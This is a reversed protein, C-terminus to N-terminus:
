ESSGDGDGEGLDTQLLSSHDKVLDGINVFSGTFFENKDKMSFEDKSNKDLLKAKDAVGRFALAVKFTAIWEQKEQVSGARLHLRGKSGTISFATPGFPSSEFIRSNMDDLPFDGRKDRGNRCDEETLWYVLSSSKQNSQAQFFRRKWNGNVRKLKVVDTNLNRLSTGMSDLSPVSKRKPVSGLGVFSGMSGLNKLGSFLISRGGAIKVKTETKTGDESTDGLVVGGQSADDDGSGRRKNRERERQTYEVPLKDLWGRYHKRSAPVTTVNQSKGPNKIKEHRSSRLSNLEEPVSMLGISSSPKADASADFAIKKESSRAIADESKPEVAKSIIPEPLVPAAAALAQVKVLNSEPKVIVDKSAFKGPVYNAGLGEKVKNLVSLGTTAKITWEHSPGLAATLKESADKFYVEAEEFNELEALFGALDTKVNLTQPADDGFVAIFGTLARRLRKAAADSDCRLDALQSLTVLTELTRKDALGFKAELKDLAASCIREAEEFNGRDVLVRSLTALALLTDEHDEGKTNMMNECVKRLTVEAESAKGQLRFVNVLAIAVEMSLDHAVGLQVTRIDLAKKLLAEAEAHKGQAASMIKALRYCFTATALHDKTREPDKAAAECVHALWELLRDKMVLNAGDYGISDRISCLIQAEDNKSTADARESDIADFTAKIVSPMDYFLRENFSERMAPPMAVHLETGQQITALLEWLCWARKLPLPHKWDALVLLSSGITGVADCFTTTLWSPTISYTVHQSVCVVDLWVYANAPDDGRVKLEHELSDWISKFPANWSHIIMTGAGSVLSRNEKSIMEVFSNRDKATKPKIFAECVEKTTLDEEASIEISTFGAFPILEAEEGLRKAANQRQIKTHLSERIKIFAEQAQSSSTNTDSTTAAPKQQQSVSKRGLFSITPSEIVMASTNIKHILCNVIIADSEKSVVECTTKFLKSTSAAPPSGGGNSGSGGFTLAGALKEGLRALAKPQIENKGILRVAVKITSDQVDKLMTELYKAAIGVLPFPELETM